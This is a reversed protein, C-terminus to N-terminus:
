VIGLEYDPNSQVIVINYSSTDDTGQSGPPAVSSWLDVVRFPYTATASLVSHDITMGSKGYGGTISQTGVSIETNAGIDAFVFPTSLSQVAFLQPPVGAIPVIFATGDYAHDGTPWYTSYVVKGQSTSLYKCGVFVGAVNSGQLGTTGLSVYGTGLSQVIDGKCIATGYAAAIKREVTAGTVSPGGRNWGLHRFGFPANTNSM